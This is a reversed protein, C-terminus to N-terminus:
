KEPLRETTQGRKLEIIRRDATGHIGEISNKELVITMTPHDAQFAVPANTSHNVPYWFYAHNRRFVTADARGAQHYGILADRVVNFEVLTGAAAANVQIGDTRNRIFSNHRLVNGLARPFEVPLNPADGSTVLAGVSCEETRNGEALNWFLPSIGRNWTRPMSSALTTGNAYLFLGPKRQRAITNGSVVNEICSIWLQIGTMGDTTQNGVILNQYFATGVAVVSGTSPPVNWPRDLLLKEGERRVVRRTQGQGRGAFVTVYYEYIPPETTGDDTDPPWFPTENGAADHALQERKVSGLHEDPTRPVTKPLTVSQTDAGALAGFFMTRHNAEFLIMEGVNQDTGAVGGFQAGESRNGAIWNRTISGHGTSFWLMRRATPGGAEAGTPSAIVNNEILCEEITDCRGLIAAEANGGFRTVSVLRNNAFQCQRAGSLFIPARGWLECDRVVAHVVYRARVGCNEGQKGDVDAVRVNRVVGNTIWALPQASQIAIGVNVQANGLLTLDSIGAGDGSLWLAARDGGYLKGEKSVFRECDEAQVVVVTASNTPPPTMTPEYSPDMAFLFADLSVGGGKINKWTLTHRGATLELTATKSWRFAGFSGTNDMNMLPVVPGNDVSVAHNGSVGDQKWPKLDTAYRVWVEWRGSQPIDLRYEMMDGPTHIAGPAHNWGTGSLRTFTATPDYVLQLTTADRGAGQLMVGSPVRLTGAFTVRGVGLLVTGGGREALKEMVQQLEAGSNGHFHVVPRSPTAGAVDLKLPTGWGWEGGDGAHIWIEYEGPPPLRFAVEYKGNKKAEIWTGTEKGSPRLYVFAKAFDPRRSLNRGFVRVKDGDVMCWWPQPANLVIPTSWGTNNRVWVIFPGDQAREPITVALLGSKLLQAQLKYEQGAPTNASVGWAVVNTTLNEGVMLFTEDPGAERSHEYIVPAGPGTPRDPFEFKNGPTNTTPGALAAVAGLMILITWRM